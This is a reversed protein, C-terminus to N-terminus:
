KTKVLENLQNYLSELSPDLPTKPDGWVLRSVADGDQYELFNYLNGPHNFAMKQLGLSAATEFLATATKTKAKDWEQIAGNIDRKFVQGNKLLINTKEKGVVGGGSGWRLQQTPLNDATFKPQHKCFWLLSATALLTLSILILKM